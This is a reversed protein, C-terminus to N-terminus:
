TTKASEDLSANSSKRTLQLLNSKFAVRGLCTALADTFSKGYAQEFVPQIEGIIQKTTAASDNSSELMNKLSDAIPTAPNYTPRPFTEQQEEHLIACEKCDALSHRKKQQLPLQKWNNLSYQSICQQKSERNSWKSFIGNIGKCYHHFKSDRHGYGDFITPDNIYTTSPSFLEKFKWAREVTDCHGKGRGVESYERIAVRAYGCNIKFHVTSM